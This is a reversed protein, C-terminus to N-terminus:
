VFIINKQMKNYKQISRVFFTTMFVTMNNSTTQMTRCVKGRFPVANSIFEFNNFHLYHLNISSNRVHQVIVAM